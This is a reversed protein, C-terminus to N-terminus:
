ALKYPPIAVYFVDTAPRGAHPQQLLRAPPRACASGGASPATAHVDAVACRASASSSPTPAQAPDRARGHLPDMLVSTAQLASTYIGDRLEHRMEGADLRAPHSSAIESAFSGPPGRPLDRGRRGGRLQAPPHSRLVRHPSYAAREPPPEVPPGTACAPERRGHPARRRALLATSGTHARESPQKNAAAASRSPSITLTAAAAAAHDATRPWCRRGRKRKPTTHSWMSESKDLGDLFTDVVVVFHHSHEAELSEIRMSSAAGRQPLATPRSRTSPTASRRSAAAIPMGEDALRAAGGREDSAAVLPDLAMRTDTAATWASRTLIAHRLGSANLEAGDDPTLPASSGTVVDRCPPSALTACDAAADPDPGRRM